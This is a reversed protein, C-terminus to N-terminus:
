TGDAGGVEKLSARPLAWFVGLGQGLAGGEVKRFSQRWPSHKAERSLLGRFQM